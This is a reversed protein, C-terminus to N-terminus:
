GVLLAQPALQSLRMRLWRVQIETEGDCTKVVRFLEGDRAGQAAQGLLGWAIACGSAMRYLEHLDRLLGILGDRPGAFPGDHLQDPAPPASQAYRGEIPALLEVHRGTQNGFTHCLYYVDPDNAHAEAVRHFADALATEARHQMTVYNALQM